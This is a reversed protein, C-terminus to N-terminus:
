YFKKGKMMLSNNSSFFPTGNFKKEQKANGKEFYKSLGYDILFITDKDKDIMINQPKLDNHYYGISHFEKLRHIM